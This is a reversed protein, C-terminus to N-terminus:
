KEENEQRDGEKCENRKIKKGSGRKLWLIWWSASAKTKNKKTKKHNLQDLQQRMKVFLKKKDKKERKKQTNRRSTSQKKEKVKQPCPLIQSNIVLPEIAPRRQAEDSFSWYSTLAETTAGVAATPVCPPGYAPSGHAPDAVLWLPSSPRHTRAGGATETRQRSSTQQWKLPIMQKMENKVRRLCRQYSVYFM